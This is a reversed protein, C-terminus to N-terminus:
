GKFMAPGDSLSPLADGVPMVTVGRDTQRRSDGGVKMRVTEM